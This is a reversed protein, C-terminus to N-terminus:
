LKRGWLAYRRFVRAGTNTSHTASLNQEHMLAHIVKAFGKARARAHFANALMSGGGKVRAAYTKLIVSIPARGEAFNPFAFLFGKLAGTEDEALLVLEPDIMPLVPKYSDFFREASIPTYFANNAFAELSLAHIASLEQEARAPDFNRLRIGAPPPTDSEPADIPRESSVYRSVIDFGAQEWAQPYFTENSPERLFPRRGDSEIVHRYSNWTDGDIPGLAAEVGEAKLMACAEAILAAGDNACDCKFGGLAATRLGDLSPGNRWVSLQAGKGTIVQPDAM